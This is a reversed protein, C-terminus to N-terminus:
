SFVMFVLLTNQTSSWIEKGNASHRWTGQMKCRSISSHRGLSSSREGWCANTCAMAPITSTVEAELVWWPGRSTPLAFCADLNWVSTLNHKTWDKPLRSSESTKFLRIIWGGTGHGALPRPRRMSFNDILRGAMYLPSRGSLSSAEFCQITSSYITRNDVSQITKSSQWFVKAYRSGQRGIGLLGGLLARTALAARCASTSTSRPFNGHQNSLHHQCYLSLGSGAQDFWYFLPTNQPHTLLPTNQAHTGPQVWEDSSQKRWAVVM